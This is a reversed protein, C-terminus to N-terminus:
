MLWLQAQSGDQASPFWIPLLFAFNYIHFHFLCFSLVLTYSPLFPLRLRPHSDRKPQRATGLPGDGTVPLGRGRVWQVSARQPPLEQGGHPTPIQLSCCLPAKPTAGLIHALPPHAQCTNPYVQLKRVTMAAESWGTKGCPATMTGSTVPPHPPSQQEREQCIHPKLPFSLQSELVGDAEQALISVHGELELEAWAWPQQSRIM